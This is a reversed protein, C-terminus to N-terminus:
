HRMVCQTWSLSPRLAGVDVSPAPARGNADFDALRRERGPAHAIPALRPAPDRPRRHGRRLSMAEDTAPPVSPAPSGPPNEGDLAADAGAPVRRAAGEAEVTLPSRDALDGVCAADVPACVGAAVEAAARSVALGAPMPPAAVVFAVLLGAIM